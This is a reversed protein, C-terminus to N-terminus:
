TNLPQKKRKRFHTFKDGKYYEMRQWRYGFLQHFHQIKGTEEWGLHFLYRISAKNLTDVTTTLEIKGQLKWYEWAMKIVSISVQTNRYPKAIEGALQFVQHDLVPFTQHLYHQDYFDKDAYWAIAIMNGSETEYAAFATLGRDFLDNYDSKFRQFYECCLPIDDRTFERAHWRKSDKYRRMELSLDRNLFVINQHKYIFKRISKKAVFIFFGLFGKEHFVRKTKTILSRAM